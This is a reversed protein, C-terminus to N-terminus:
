LKYNILLIRNYEIFCFLFPIKKFANACQANCSLSQKFGDSLMCNYYQNNLQFILKEKNIIVFHEIFIVTSIANYLYSHIGFLSHTTRMNWFRETSIACNWFYHMAKPIAAKIWFCVMKSSNANRKLSNLTNLCIKM